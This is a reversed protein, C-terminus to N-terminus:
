KSKIVFDKTSNENPLDINEVHPAKVLPKGQVSEGFAVGDYPMITVIYKGGVVGYDSALSYKGGKIQTMSAPGTNGAQGDPEFNIEGAPVTKGDPLTISGSVTFKKMDDSPGCGTLGLTLFTFAIPRVLAHLSTSHLKMSFELIKSSHTQAISELPSVLSRLAPHILDASRM